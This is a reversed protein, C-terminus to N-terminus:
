EDYEFYVNEKKNETFMNYICLIWMFLGIFGFLYTLPTGYIWSVEVGTATYMVVNSVAYASSFWFLGTILSLFPRNSYIFAVVMFLLSALILVLVIELPFSLMNGGGLVPITTTTTMKDVV